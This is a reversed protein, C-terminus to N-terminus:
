GPTACASPEHFDGGRPKRRNRIEAACAAAFIRRFTRAWLGHADGEAIDDFLAPLDAAAAVRLHIKERRMEVFQPQTLDGVIKQAMDAGLQQQRLKAAVGDIMTDDGGLRFGGLRRALWQDGVIEIRATPVNKDDMTKVEAVPHFDFNLALGNTALPPANQMMPARFQPESNKWFKERPHHVAPKSQIEGGRWCNEPIAVVQEVERRRREHFGTRLERAKPM